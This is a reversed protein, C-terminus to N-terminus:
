ARGPRPARRRRDSRPASCPCCRAPRARRGLDVVCGGVCKHHREKARTTASRNAPGDARCGPRGCGRSPSRPCPRNWETSPRPARLSRGFQRAPSRPQADLQGAGGVVSREDRLDGRRRGLRQTELLAVGDVHPGGPTRRQRAAGVQWPGVLGILGFASVFAQNKPSCVCFRVFDLRNIRNLTQERQSRPQRAM